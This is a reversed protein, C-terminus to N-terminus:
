EDHNLEGQIILLLEARIRSGQTITFCFCKLESSTMYKTLLPYIDIFFVYNFNLIKM